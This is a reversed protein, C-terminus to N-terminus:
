RDAAEVYTAGLVASTVISLSSDVQLRHIQVFTGADQSCCSSVALLSKKWLAEGLIFSRRGPQLKIATVKCGRRFMPNLRLRISEHQENTASENWFYFAM